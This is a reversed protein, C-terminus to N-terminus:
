VCILASNRSPQFSDLQQEAIGSRAGDLYPLHEIQSGVSPQRPSSGKQPRTLDSVYTAPQEVDLSISGRSKKLSMGNARVSLSVMWTQPSCRREVVSKHVFRLFSALECLAVVRQRNCMPIDPSNSSDAGVPLPLLAIAPSARCHRYELSWDIGVSPKCSVSTDRSPSSTTAM